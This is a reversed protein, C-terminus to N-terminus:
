GTAAMIPFAALQEPLIRSHLNNVGGDLRLHQAASSESVMVSTTEYFVTPGPMVKGAVDEDILESASLFFVDHENKRVADYSKSSEYQYFEFRSEPVLVAAGVARCFDLLLGAARGDPGVSVLGPRFKAGCRLIGDQKVRDLVSGANGATSFLIFV